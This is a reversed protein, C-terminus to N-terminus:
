KGIVLSMIFSGVGGCLIGITGIIAAQRTSEKENSRLREDLSNLSHSMVSVTSILSTLEGRMEGIERSLQLAFSNNPKDM